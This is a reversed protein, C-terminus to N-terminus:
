SRTTEQHRGPAERRRRRENVPLMLSQSCEKQGGIVVGHVDTIGDGVFVSLVTLSVGAGRGNLQAIYVAHIGVRSSGEQLTRSVSAATM